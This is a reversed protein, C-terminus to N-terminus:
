CRDDLMFYDNGFGKEHRLLAYMSCFLELPLPESAEAFLCCRM